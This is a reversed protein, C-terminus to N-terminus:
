AQEQIERAQHQAMMDMQLQTLTAKFTADSLSTSGLPASANTGSRIPGM